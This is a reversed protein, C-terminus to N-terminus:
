SEPVILLRYFRKATANSGEDYYSSQQSTAIFPDFLNTWVPNNLDDKYQLLYRRGPVTPWEVSYHSGSEKLLTAKLLSQPDTPDTGARYEDLDSMGDGDFDGAGTRSLGGFYQQEWADNMQDTDSDAFVTITKRLLNSSSDYIYEVSKGGGLSVYTLRGGADYFYNAIQHAWVNPGALASLMLGGGLIAAMFHRCHKKTFATKM